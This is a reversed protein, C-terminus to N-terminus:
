HTVYEIKEDCYEDYVTVVTRWRCNVFVCVRSGAARRSATTKECLKLTFGDLTFASVPDKDKM